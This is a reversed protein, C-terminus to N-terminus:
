SLFKRTDRQLIQHKPKENLGQKRLAVREETKFMNSAKIYTQVHEFFESNQKETITDLGFLLKNTNLTHLQCTNVVLQLRQNSCDADANEIEVGCDCM